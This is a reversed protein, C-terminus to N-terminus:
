FKFEFHTTVVCLFHIMYINIQYAMKKYSISVNIIQLKGRDRESILKTIFFQKKDCMRKQGGFSSSSSSLRILGTQSHSGM